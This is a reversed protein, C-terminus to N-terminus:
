RLRVTSSKVHCGCDHRKHVLSTDVSGPSVQPKESPVEPDQCSETALCVASGRKSIAVRTDRGCQWGNIKAWSPHRHCAIIFLLALCPAFVNNKENNLDNIKAINQRTINRAMSYNM